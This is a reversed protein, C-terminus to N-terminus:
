ALADKPITWGPSKDRRERRRGDTGQVPPRLTTRRRMGPFRDEALNGAPANAAQKNVHESRMRHGSRRPQPCFIRNELAAFVNRNECLCEILSKACLSERRRSELNENPECIRPFDYKKDMVNRTMSLFARFTRSLSANKLLLAEAHSDIASQRGNKRPTRRGPLSKERHAPGLPGRAARILPQRRKHQPCSTAFHMRNPRPAGAPPRLTRSPRLKSSAITCSEPRSPAAYPPM